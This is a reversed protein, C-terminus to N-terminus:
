KKSISIYTIGRSKKDAMYSGFMDEDQKSREVTNANFTALSHLIFTELYKNLTVLDKELGPALYIYEHIEGETIKFDVFYLNAKDYTDLPREGALEITLKTVTSNSIGYKNNYKYGLLDWQRITNLLAEKNTITLQYGPLSSTVSIDGLPEGKADLLVRTPGPIGSLTPHLTPLPESTPKATPKVYLIFASAVVFVIILLGILVAALNNKM